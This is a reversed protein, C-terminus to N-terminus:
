GKGRKKKALMVEAVGPAIGDAVLDAVKVPSSAPKVADDGAEWAAREAPDAPVLPLGLREVISVRRGGNSQRGARAYGDAIDVTEGPAVNVGLDPCVCPSGSHNVM